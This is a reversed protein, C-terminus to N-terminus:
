LGLDHRLACLFVWWRSAIAFPRRLRRRVKAGVNDLCSEFRDSNLSFAVMFADVNMFSAKNIADFAEQGATDRLTVKCAHLGYKELEAEGARDEFITPEYGDSFDDYM